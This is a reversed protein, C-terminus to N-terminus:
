APQAATLRELSAELISRRAAFAFTSITSRSLVVAFPTISRARRASRDGGRAAASARVAALIGVFGFDDFRGLMVAFAALSFLM